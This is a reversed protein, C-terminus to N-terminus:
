TLRRTLSDTVTCTLIFVLTMDPIERRLMSDVALRDVEYTADVKAVAVKGPDLHIWGHDTSPALVVLDPMALSPSSFCLLLPSSHLPTFNKGDLDLTNNRAKSCIEILDIRQFMDLEVHQDQSCVGLNQNPKFAAIGQGQSRFQSPMRPMHPVHM